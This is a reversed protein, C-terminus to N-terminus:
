CTIYDEGIIEHVWKGEMAVFSGILNPVRIDSNYSVCTLETNPERPKLDAPGAIQFEKGSETVGAGGNMSELFLKLCM